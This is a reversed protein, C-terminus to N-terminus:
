SCIKNIRKPVEVFPEGNAFIGGEVKRLRERSKPRQSAWELEKQLEDDGAVFYSEWTLETDRVFLDM